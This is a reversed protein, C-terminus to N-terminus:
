AEVLGQLKKWLKINNECYGEIVAVEPPAQHDALHVGHRALVALTKDCFEVREKAYRGLHALYEPHVAGGPKYKEVYDITAHATVEDSALNLCFSLHFNMAKQEPSTPQPKTAIPEMKSM